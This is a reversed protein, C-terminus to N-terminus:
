PPAPLPLFTTCRPLLQVIVFSLSPFPQLVFSPNLIGLFGSVTIKALMPYFRAFDANRNLGAQYLLGLDSM